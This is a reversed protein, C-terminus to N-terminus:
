EAGRVTDYSECQPCKFPSSGMPWVGIFEYGCQLCEVKGEMWREPVLEYVTGLETVFVEHVKEVEQRVEREEPTERNLPKEM